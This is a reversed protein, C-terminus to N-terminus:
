KDGETINTEKKQLYSGKRYFKVLIQRIREHSLHYKEGLQNYTTEGEFYESIIAKDRETMNVTNLYKLLDREEIKEKINSKEM